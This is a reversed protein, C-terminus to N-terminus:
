ETWAIDRAERLTHKLHGLRQVRGEKGTPPTEQLGGPVFIVFNAGTREKMM